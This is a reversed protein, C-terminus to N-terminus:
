HVKDPVDNEYLFEVLLRSNETLNPVLVDAKLGSITVRENTYYGDVPVRNQEMPYELYSMVNAALALVENKSMNTTIMGLIKALANNITFIDSTKMKNVLSMVVKRQRETRGQDDGIARIRSYYRAQKGTLNHTGASLTKGKEGSHQNVLKAEAQTLEIEVGGLTDIIDEFNDYDIIVFRDIDVGFNSELTQVTLPAGGLSYAANIRNPAWGPIQVYMDRMFSTLKLKQHRTDITLLMQSDSRGVDNEQYDDVGLLLINMVADDHYLGKSSPSEGFSVNSNEHDGQLSSQTTSPPKAAEEDTIFNANSLMGEAYMCGGGVLLFAVSFIAVIINVAKRKGSLKRKQPTHSSLNHLDHGDGYPNTEFDRRIKKRKSM